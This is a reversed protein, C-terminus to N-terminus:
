ALGGLDLWIAAPNSPDISAMVTRGAQLQGVQFQSVLQQVTAPYPPMGEPTVTVDFEVLPDFNMTGVQRIGTIVVPCRATAQGTGAAGAAAATAAQTQLEMMQSLDAMRAQMSAMREGVPGADREMERTQKQLDRLNKFMGM